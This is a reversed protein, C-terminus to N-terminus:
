VLCVGLGRDRRFNITAAITLFTQDYIVDMQSIQSHKHNEDDQSICLAGVWLFRDGLSRVLEMAERVVTPLIVRKNGWTSLYNQTSTDVLRVFTQCIRCSKREGMTELPVPSLEISLNAPWDQNANENDDFGNCREIFDDIPRVNIKQCDACVDQDPIIHTWKGYLRSRNELEQLPM